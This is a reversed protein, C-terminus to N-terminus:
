ATTLDPPKKFAMWEAAALRAALPSTLGYINHRRTTADQFQSSLSYHYSFYFSSWTELLLLM